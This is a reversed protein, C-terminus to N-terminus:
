KELWRGSVAPLQFYPRLQLSSALHFMSDSMPCSDFMLEYTNQKYIITEWSSVSIKAWWSSRLGLDNYKFVEYSPYELRTIFNVIIRSQFLRMDQIQSNTRDDKVIQSAFKPFTFRSRLTLIQLTQNKKEIKKTLKTGIFSSFCMRFLDVQFFKEINVLQYRNWFSNKLGSMHKRNHSFVLNISRLTASSFIRVGIM